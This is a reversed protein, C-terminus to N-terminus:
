KLMCLNSVDIRPDYEFISADCTNFSHQWTHFTSYCFRQFNDVFDAISYFSELRLKAGKYVPARRLLSTVGGSPDGWLFKKKEDCDRWVCTLKVWRCNFDESISVLLIM